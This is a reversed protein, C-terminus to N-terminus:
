YDEAKYEFLAERAHFKCYICFYTVALSTFADMLFFEASDRPRGRHGSETERASFYFLGTILLLFRAISFPVAFLLIDTETFQSEGKAVGVTWKQSTIDGEEIPM